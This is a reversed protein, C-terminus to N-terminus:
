KGQRSFILFNEKGVLVASLVNKPIIGEIKLSILTFIKKPNQLDQREFSNQSLYTYDKKKIDMFTGGFIYMYEYPLQNIRAELKIEISLQESNRM